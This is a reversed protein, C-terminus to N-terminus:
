WSTSNKKRTFMTGSTDLRKVSDVLRNFRAENMEVKSVYVTGSFVTQVMGVGPSNAAYSQEASITQAYGYEVALLFLLM